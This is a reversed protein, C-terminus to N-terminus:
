KNKKKAGNDTNDVKKIDLTVKCKKAVEDLIMAIVTDPSVREAIAEFNMKM